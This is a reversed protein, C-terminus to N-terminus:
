LWGDRRLAYLTLAGAAAFVPVLAFSVPVSYGLNYALVLGQVYAVVSGVFLVAAGLVRPDATPDARGSLRAVALGVVGIAPALVVGLPKAVFSDPEGGAGFHVAMEAPLRPWLAIGALAAGVVLAVGLLDPWRSRLSV